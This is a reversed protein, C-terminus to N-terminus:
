AGPSLYDPAAVLDGTARPALENIGISTISSTSQCRQSWPSRSSVPLDLIRTM